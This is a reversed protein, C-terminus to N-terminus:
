GCFSKNKVYKTSSIIETQTSFSVETICMQLLKLAEEKSLDLVFFIKHLPINWM